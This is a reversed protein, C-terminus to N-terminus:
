RAGQWAGIAAWGAAWRRPLRRLRRADMGGLAVAPRGAVRALAGWRHPGLGPAGPHSATPFAPSVLAADARLRRARAVGGRGHLAVSLLRGRRNMLFILLNRCNARDPVHLGAGYALAARGDGGILLVLGRARCLRAVRGM